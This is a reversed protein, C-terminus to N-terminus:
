IVGAAKFVIDRGARLLGADSVRRNTLIVIGTQQNPLVGIYARFGATTGTKDMFNDGNYQRALFFLQKAPIPGVHSTASPHMLYNIARQDLPYIQWALGQYFSPLRVFPTQTLHMASQIFAPTGPVGIAARLFKMMDEPSAKMSGAAELAPMNVRNAPLGDARYGQAYFENYQAPMEIGVPAMGLPGLISQRYLQDYSENHFEELCDGLLGIGVNSYIWTSGNHSPFRWWRMYRALSERSKISPPVDFPFGSTHTALQEWTINNVSPNYSSLDTLYRSVSSSLNIRGSKVDEALLLSTFLKTVSGIEFLTSDSVKAQTSLNAYGFYYAHPVGRVILDVAVGPLRNTQMFNDIDGKVLDKLYLDEVSSDAWALSTFFFFVFALFLSPFRM